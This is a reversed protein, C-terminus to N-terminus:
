GIAREHGAIRRLLGIQGIHYAEHFQLFAVRHAVDLEVGGPGRGGPQALDHETAAELAEVISEHSSQFQEVMAEWRLVGPADGTLTQSGRKYLDVAADPWFADRKLMKLIPHRTALVHGLVWNLCNGGTDPSRLSEDHTLGAANERFVVRNLDFLFVLDRANM